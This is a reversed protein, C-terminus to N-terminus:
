WEGGRMATLLPTSERAPRNRWAEVATLDTMTHPRLSDPAGERAAVAETPGDATVFEVHGDDFVLKYRSM